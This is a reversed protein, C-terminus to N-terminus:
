CPMFYEVNRSLSAPGGLLTVKTVGMAKLAARTESPVCSGPVVILPASRKAALVAGALADPFNYGTAIFAETSGTSGFADVAINRSAEMRDAGSLRTTPAITALSTQMAQSVSNPGGVITIQTVGLGILFERTADDVASDTGRVLVTPVGFVGGPSGASLADPFNAGTAVYVRTASDFAYDVIARSAEYRDAGGLRVTQGAPALASLQTFMGESVSDPGGVVVIKGPRLRQIEAAIPAPLATGPPVLLLPGGQRFAAPAASLADPYNTGTAVYVVPATAPSPFSQQSISVAVEYRDIGSIRTVTAGDLGATPDGFWRNYYDWFNRNGYSSCADGIGGLNALAAANPTYPTYIYLSATPQNRITVSKTGCATNPNYQIDVTRGPAFKWAFNTSWPTGPGTGPPNGYRILYWAGFYVQQFFGAQAPDCGATDPCGAGMAARYQGATPWDDTVLSQEKQLTVLIVRPSIGCAQAVKYIIRSARENAAGTYATCMPDAGKSQTTQTFDKLCVYGVRCTPVKSELFAQIESETMADSDYFQADSIIYGPDFTAAADVRTAPAVGVLLTSLVTAPLLLALM